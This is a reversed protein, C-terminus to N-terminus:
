RGLFLVSYLRVKHLVLKSLVTIIICVLICYVPNIVIFFLPRIMFFSLPLFNLNRVLVMHIGYIDLSYEGFSLYLSRIFPLKTLCHKVLMYSFLCGTLAWINAYLFNYFNIFTLNSHLPSFNFIYGIITIPFFLLSVVTLKLQHKEIFVSLKDSYINLYYGVILYPYFHEFSKFEFIDNPLLIILIWFLLHSLIRLKPNIKKALMNGFIIDVRFVLTSLYLILLYWVSPTYVFCKLMLKSFVAGIDPDNRLSILNLVIASMSWFFFPILLSKTKKIFFSKINYKQLSWANLYGSVVFFLPMHFSYIFKNVYFSQESILFKAYIEYIFHGMVVLYIAWGKLVDITVNRKISFIPPTSEYQLETKM